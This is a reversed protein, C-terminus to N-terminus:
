KFECFWYRTIRYWDPAIIPDCCFFKQVFYLIKKREKNAQQNNYSLDQSWCHLSHFVNSYFTVKCRYLCCNWKYFFSTELATRFNLQFPLLHGHNRKERPICNKWLTVKASVFLPVNALQPWANGVWNSGATQRVIWLLGISHICPMFLGTPPCM